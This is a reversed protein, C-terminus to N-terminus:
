SSFLKSCILALQTICYQLYNKNLDQKLVARSWSFCISALTWARTRADLYTSIQYQLFGHMALQAKYPWILLLVHHVIIRLQYGEERYFFSFMFWSARSFPGLLSRREEKVNILFRVLVFFVILLLFKGGLTTWCTRVLRKHALACTHVTICYGLFIQWERKPCGVQFLSAWIDHVYPQAWLSSCGQFNTHM